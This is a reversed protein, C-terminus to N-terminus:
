ICIFSLTHIFALFINISSDNIELHKKRYQDPVKITEHFLSILEVAANTDIANFINVIKGSARKRFIVFNYSFAFCASFSIIKRFSL